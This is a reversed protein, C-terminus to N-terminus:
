INPAKKQKHTFSTPTEDYWLQIKCWQNKNEWELHKTNICSLLTLAKTYFLNSEAVYIFNDIEIITWM